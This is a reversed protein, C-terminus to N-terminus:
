DTTVRFSAPDLPFDEQDVFFVGTHTYRCGPRCVGDFLTHIGIGRIRTLLAGIPDEVDGFTNSECQACM